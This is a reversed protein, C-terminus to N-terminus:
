AGRRQPTAPHTVFEVSNAKAEILLLENSKSTILEWTQQRTPALLIGLRVDGEPSCPPVGPGTTRAGRRGRHPLAQAHRIGLNTLMRREHPPRPLITRHAIQSDKNQMQQRCDAPQGTGAAGTGHHSFGHEDLV